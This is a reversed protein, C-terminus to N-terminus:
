GQKSKRYELPSMQYSDRFIKGFFSSTGFGCIQAINTISDTGDSLLRAAVQLRYQRVYENPTMHMVAHFSRYCERESVFAADAINQITIKEGFHEHVYTVMLKMKENLKPSNMNTDMNEMMPSSLLLLDVLIDSLISRIRIEFGLEQESLLFSAKLKDLVAVHEPQNKYLPLIEISSFDTIPSIYKQDIRSGTHGSILTTDFLHILQVCRNTQQLPLKTTHLVGSNVMGGCGETLVIKGAPTHYELAGSEIYFLEVAKHWHWPANKCQSTLHARTATYLFDQHFNPLIEENTNQKLEVQSGYHENMEYVGEHKNFM